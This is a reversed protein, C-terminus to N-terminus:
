WNGSHASPSVLSREFSTGSNSTMLKSSPAGRNYKPRQYPQRKGLATNSVTSENSSSSCQSAVHGVGGCNRCRNKQPCEQYTHGPRNCKACINNCQWAFHGYEGCKFCHKSNSGHPCESPFHGHEGCRLCPKTPVVSCNTSKHGSDGCKFCRNYLSSTSSQVNTVMASLNSAVLNSTSSDDQKTAPVSTNGLQRYRAQEESPLMYDNAFSILQTCMDDYTLQGPRTRFAIQLMKLDINSSMMRILNEKLQAETFRYDTIVSGPAPALNSWAVREIQLNHIKFINAKISKSDTFDPLNELTQLSTRARHFNYRGYTEQLIKFLRNL